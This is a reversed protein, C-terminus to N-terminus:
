YLCPWLGTKAVTKALALFPSKPANENSIVIVYKLGLQLSEFLSHDQNHHGQPFGHFFVKHKNKSSAISQDSLSQATVGRFSPHGNNKGQAGPGFSTWL